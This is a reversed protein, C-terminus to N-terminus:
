PIANYAAIASNVAANLARSSVTAGTYADVDTGLVLEHTAPLGSYKAWYDPNDAVNSGYGKTEAQETVKLRIINGDTDFATMVTVDGGYGKSSSTIVYGGTDAEYVDTVKEVSIGEVLTFTSAEPILEKRAAEQAALTAEEIIPATVSNTAALAGAIIICIVCLVVIPKGIRNWNNM